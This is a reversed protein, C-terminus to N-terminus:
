IIAIGGPGLKITIPLEIEPIQLALKGGSENILYKGDMGQELLSVLQRDHVGEDILYITTANASRLRGGVVSLFKKVSDKPNYLVFTSLTDFVVRIKKGENSKMAENLAISLDNLASPGTVIKIKESAQAEKGLTSSYCDIFNINPKDLKLGFNSARNIIDQPTTSSCVIYANEEGSSVFHYAFVNKEMRLEAYQYTSLLKEIKDM